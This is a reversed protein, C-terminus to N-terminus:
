TKTIKILIIDNVPHLIGFLFLVVQNNLIDKKFALTLGISRDICM